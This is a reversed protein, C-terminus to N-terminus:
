KQLKLLTLLNYLKNNAAKADDFVNNISKQEAPQYTAIAAEIEKTLTSKTVEDAAFKEKYLKPTIRSNLVYSSFNAQHVVAEQLKVIAQFTTIAKQLQAFRPDDARIVNDTIAKQLDAIFKKNGAMAEEITKSLTDLKNFPVFVYNKGITGKVGHLTAGVGDYTDFNGSSSIDDYLFNIVSKGTTDICGWKYSNAQVTAIGNNFNRAESFLPEIVKGQRSKFGYAFADAKIVKFNDFYNYAEDNDPSEYSIVPTQSYGKAIAIIVFFLVKLKKM